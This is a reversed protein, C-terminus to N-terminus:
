SREYTMRCVTPYPCTAECHRSFGYFAGSHIAQIVQILKQKTHLLTEAFIDPPLIQRSSIGLLDTHSSTYIGKTKTTVVQQYESGIIMTKKLEQYLWAYIWAQPLYGEGLEKLSMPPLVGTKYDIILASSDTLTDVRDIVGVITTEGLSYELKEEIATTKTHANKTRETDWVAYKELIALLRQRELKQQKHHLHTFIKSWVQDPYEQEFIDTIPTQGSNKRFSELCKHLVEGIIIPTPDDPQVDLKLIHKSFFAFPCATYLEINKASIRRVAKIVSQAQAYYTTKIDADQKRDIIERLRQLDQRAAILRQIDTNSYTKYLNFVLSDILEQTSVADQISPLLESLSRKIVPLKATFCKAVLELYYSPVLSTGSIESLAHSLYLKETCRTLSQIFLLKEQQLKHQTTRLRPSLQKREFDTCLSNENIRVPFSGMTLNALFVARFEKNRAILADYIQVHDHPKDPLSLMDQTLAEHLTEKTLAGSNELIEIIQLFRQYAKLSYRIIQTLEPIRADAELKELLHNEQVYDELMKKLPTTREQWYLENDSILALLKRVFNDQHVYIGSHITVPINYYAFVDQILETYEHIQRFIVACNGWTYGATKLRIIERAINELELYRNDAALVTINQAEPLAKATGLEQWLHQLDTQKTRLQVSCTQEICGLSLLFQRYPAYLTYTETRDFLCSAYLKETKINRILAEQLPTLDTFGDLILFQLKTTATMSALKLIDESDYLQREQRLNEYAAYLQGLELLKANATLQASTIGYQKYEAILGSLTQYFIHHSLAKAFIRVPVTTVAQRILLQKELETLPEKETIKQAYLGLTQVNDNCLPNLKALLRQRTDEIHDNTPVLWLGPTIFPHTKNACYQAVLQTTKGTGPAGTYVVRM